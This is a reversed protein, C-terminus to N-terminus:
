HNFKRNGVDFVMAWQALVEKSMTRVISSVGVLGLEDEYTVDSSYDLWACLCPWPVPHGGSCFTDLIFLTLLLWLCFM